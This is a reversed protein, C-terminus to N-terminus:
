AMTMIVDVYLVHTKCKWQLNLGADRTVGVMANVLDDRAVVKDNAMRRRVVITIPSGPTLEPHEAMYTALMQKAVASIVPIKASCTTLIPYVKSIYRTRIQGSRGMSDLAYQVLGDPQTGM